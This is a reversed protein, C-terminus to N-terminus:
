GLELGLGLWTPVHSTVKWGSKVSGVQWTTPLYTLLYTPLYTLLLLNM